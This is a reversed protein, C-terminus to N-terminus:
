LGSREVELNGLSTGLYRRWGFGERFGASPCEETAQFHRSYEVFTPDLECDLCALCVPERWAIATKCMGLPGRIVPILVGIVLQCFIRGFPAGSVVAEGVESMTLPM